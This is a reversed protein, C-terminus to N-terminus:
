VGDNPLARYGPQSFFARMSKQTIRASSNADEPLGPRADIWPAEKHTMRLLGVASYTKYDEWVSAVFAVDLKSMECKIGRPSIPKDNNSQLRRYVTPVVPGYKWAQIEDSFMPRGRHALSWGQVYYLLKQLRLNTLREPEPEAAALVILCHAVDLASPSTKSATHHQRAIM